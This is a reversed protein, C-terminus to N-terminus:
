FYLFYIEYVSIFIRLLFSFFLSCLFLISIQLSLIIIDSFESFVFLLLSVENYLIPFTFFNFSITFFFFYFFLSTLSTVIHTRHSNLSDRSITLHIYFLIIPHLYFRFLKTLFNFCSLPTTVPHNDYKILYSVIRESLKPFTRIHKFVIFINGVM